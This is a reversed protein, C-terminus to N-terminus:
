TRLAPPLLDLLNKKQHRYYFTPPGTVAGSTDVPWVIMMAGNLSAGGRMEFLVPFTTLGKGTVLDVPKTLNPDAATGFSLVDFRGYDLPTTDNIKGKQGLPHHQQFRNLALKRVTKSSRKHAMWPKLRQDQDKTNSDALVRLLKDLEGQVALQDSPALASFAATYPMKPFLDFSNKIWHEWGTLVYPTPRREDNDFHKLHAAFGVLYLVVYGKAVNTLQSTSLQQLITTRADRGPEALGQGYLLDLSTNADGFMALDIPLNVQTTAPTFSRQYAGWGDAKASEGPMREAARLIGIKVRSPDYTRQDTPHCATEFKGGNLQDYDLIQKVTAVCRTVTNTISEDEEDYRYIDKRDHGIKTDISITQDACTAGIATYFAVMGDLIEDEDGTNAARIPGGVLELQDAPPSTGKIPLDYTISLAPYSSDVNSKQKTCFLREPVSTGTGLVVGEVEWEIGLTPPTAHALGSAATLALTSILRTLTRPKM